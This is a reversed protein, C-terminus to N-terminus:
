SLVATLGARVRDAFGPGREANGKGDIIRMVSERDLDARVPYIHLHLHPVAIGLKLLIARDAGTIELLAREAAAHVAAFREREPPMLDSFNQVHPKAVVM